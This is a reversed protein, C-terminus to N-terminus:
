GTRPRLVDVAVVEVNSDVREDEAYPSLSVKINLDEDETAVVTSRPFETPEYTERDSLLLQAGGGGALYSLM